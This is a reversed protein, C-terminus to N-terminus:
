LMRDLNVIKSVPKKLAIFFLYGILGGLTNTILDTADFSRPSLGTGWWVNLLQLCEISLSFLFTMFVTKLLDKKRIIPYLFGFPMMMVINLFIERVAGGYKLRLDRFLIFNATEMFLNNTGGLFPITLPMLTVFLVMVIYIYMITNIILIKKPEKKWKKYFFRFYIFILIILNILYSINKGM